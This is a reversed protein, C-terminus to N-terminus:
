IKRKRGSYITDYIGGEVYLSNNFNKLISGFFSFPM